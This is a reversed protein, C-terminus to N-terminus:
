PTYRLLPRPAAACSIACTRWEMECWGRERYECINAGAPVDYSEPYGDPFQTLMLVFTNEAAYFTGLSDLAQKFLFPVQVVVVKALVLLSLAVGVRLKAVWAQREPWLYSLLDRLGLERGQLRPRRTAAAAVPM